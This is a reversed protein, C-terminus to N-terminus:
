CIAEYAFCKFEKDNRQDYRNMQCLIDEEWDEVVNSKCSLCLQPKPLLDLNIKNGDDDYFGNIEENM